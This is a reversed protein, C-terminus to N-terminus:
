IADWKVFAQEVTLKGTIVALVKQMGLLEKNSPTKRLRKQIEAELRQCREKYDSVVKYEIVKKEGPTRVRIDRKTGGAESLDTKVTPRRSNAKKPQVRQKVEEVKAVAERTTKGKLETALKDQEKKPLTSARAAAKPSVGGKKVDKKAAEKMRPSAKTVALYEHVLSTSKGLAKAIAAPTMDFAKMREIAGITESKTFSKRNDNTSCAIILAEKDSIYGHNVVPVAPLPGKEVSFTVALLRRHGDIVFYKKSGKKQRVHIPNLVGNVKISASLEADPHMNQRSRPNFGDEIELLDPYVGLRGDAYKVTGIKPKARKKATAM